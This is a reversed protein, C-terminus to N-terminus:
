RRAGEHTGELVGVGVGVFGILIGFAWSFWMLVGPGTATLPSAGGLSRLLVYPMTGLLIIFFGFLISIWGTRSM